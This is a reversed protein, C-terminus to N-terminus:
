SPNLVNFDAIRGDCKERILIKFVFEKKDSRRFHVALISHTLVSYFVDRQKSLCGM